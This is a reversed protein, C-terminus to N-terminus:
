LVLDTVTGRTLTLRYYTRSVVLLYRCSRRPTTHSARPSCRLYARSSAGKGPDIYRTLRHFKQNLLSQRM